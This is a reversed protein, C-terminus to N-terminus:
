EVLHRGDNVHRLDGEMGEPSTWGSFAQAYSFGHSFGFNFGQLMGYDATLVGDAPIKLDAYRCAEYSTFVSGDTRTVKVEYTDYLVNYDYWNKEDSVFLYMRYPKYTIDTAFSSPVIDEWDERILQETNAHISALNDGSIQYTNTVWITLGEVTFQKEDPEFRWGLPARAKVTVVDGNRLGTEPKIEYRTEDAYEASRRNSIQLEARGEGSMGYFKVNVGLFPNAMRPFLMERMPSGPILVNILCIGAVICFAILWGRLRNRRQDNRQLDEINDEEFSEATNQDYGEQKSEGKEILMAHGCHPCVIKEGDASLEMEEGCSPCILPLTKADKQEM